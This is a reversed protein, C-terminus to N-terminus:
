AFGDRALNPTHCSEIEANMKEMYLTCISCQDIGRKCGSRKGSYPM